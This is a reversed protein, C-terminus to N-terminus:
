MLLSRNLTRVGKPLNSMSQYTEHLLEYAIIPTDSPPDVEHTPTSAAKNLSPTRIALVAAAHARFACPWAM